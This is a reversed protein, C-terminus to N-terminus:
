GCIIMLNTLVHHLQIHPFISSLVKVLKAARAKKAQDYFLHNFIAVSGHKKVQNLFSPTYVFGPLQDGLYLDILLYDFHQKSRSLYKQADQNVIELNTIHDLNFFQRGINLMVPDIEVGVIGAPHPLLKAVTGTALGLILWNKTRLEYDQSLKKLVSQWIDKVLGGSQTLGGTTVYRNTFDQRVLLQGSYVSKFEAITKPGFIM